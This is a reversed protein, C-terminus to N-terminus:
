FVLDLHLKLRQVIWSVEPENSEIALESDSINESCCAAMNLKCCNGQGKPWLNHGMVHAYHSCLVGWDTLMIIVKGPIAPM